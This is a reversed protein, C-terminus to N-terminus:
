GSLSALMVKYEQIFKAEEELTLDLYDEEHDPIDPAIDAIAKRQEDTLEEDSSSPDTQSTSARSSDSSPTAAQPPLMGGNSLLVEVAKGVNGHYRFLALQAVDRNFGLESVQAIMEDTVQGQWPREDTDMLTLLDPHEQMVELARHLDNNTQKLSSVVATKPFGMSILTHYIEAKVWEGNATKGLRKELRRKKQKQKEKEQIEKRRERQETINTVALSVSGHAARLGLRAERVDFGMSIVQMLKDEDVQLSALIGEAKQLLELSKNREQQYFALIGQLLYLRVYLALEQTNQGKLSTLRQLDDGYSRRFCDECRKLKAEADPLENMNQLCLYCWVIDLCLVAFNDVTNLIESRCQSFAKEAELLILLAEGYQKRKLCAKGKENLTLAVSLAEREDDPIDIPKGTQDAIQLFYRERSGSSGGDKRKALIAAAEKTKILNTAQKERGRAEIETESLCIVMVQSGHRVHQSHISAADQLVSGCSILKLHDEPIGSREAIKQKLDKGTIELETQLDFTKKETTTQGGPINGTLKVMLTAEQLRRTALKALTHLRLSELTEEVVQRPLNLESAYRELLVEPYVGKSTAGKETYPPAWLKIKEAILKQRIVQTAEDDNTPSSSAM